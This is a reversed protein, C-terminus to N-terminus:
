GTVQDFRGRRWAYRECRRFFLWGFVTLAASTGALALVLDGQSWDQLPSPLEGPGLLCRRVGELWYTSPLVLSLPHLWAPLVHVPVVVGSLLYLGGAVGESLFNGYRSMNLVAGALILGLAVLMVTGLFVHAVLWGWAVGHSGLSARVEPLLVMGILLALVVGVSAQVARALGRGILFHPLGAPSIRVYKLMGYQERDAIVAASIGFMVGGVLMFCASGVYLFALYGAPAQRGTGLEAAWYLCVLLLSATLPKVLAYLVFLGPSIWNSEIQWALWASCRLTQLYRRM